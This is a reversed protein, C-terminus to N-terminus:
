LMDDGSDAPLWPNIHRPGLNRSLEVKRNGHSAEELTTYERHLGIEAGGHGNLIYLLPFMIRFEINWSEWWRRIRAAYGM